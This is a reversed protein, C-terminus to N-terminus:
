IWDKRKFYILMCIGIIMMFFSIIYFGSKLALLPMVRFNMGYIGTILTLPMMITAIITLVKMIDNTRNSITSLYADFTGNIIDRYTDISDNIFIMNDYVDRFYVRRKPNIFQFNEKSLFNVTDRQPGIFRRLYMVDKKVAFINNLTKQTPNKLVQTEISGIKNDMVDLVPLYNDVLSDIILHLLSDPGKSMMAPNKQARDVAIEVGKISEQHITIIFNKGLCINLEITRVRQARPTTAAAHMVIFMYKEFQEIKPRTNTNICDELTLPHLEFVKELIDMEEKSPNVLDLWLEGKESQVADKMENSSLEKIIENNGKHYLLTMSM